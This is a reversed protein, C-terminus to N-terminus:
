PAFSGPANNSFCGENAPTKDKTGVCLISYKYCIDCRQLKSDVSADVRLDKKELYPVVVNHIIERLSQVKTLPQLKDRLLNVFEQIEHDKLGVPINKASAKIIKTVHTLKESPHHTNLLNLCYLLYNYDDLVLNLHIM